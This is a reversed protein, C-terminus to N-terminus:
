GEGKRTRTRLSTAVRVADPLHRDDVVDDGNNAEEENEDGAVLVRRFAGDRRDM